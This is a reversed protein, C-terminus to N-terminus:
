MYMYMYIIQSNTPNSQCTPTNTWQLTQQCRVLASEEGGSLQYGEDCTYSLKTGVTFKDDMKYGEEMSYSAKLVTAEVCAQM